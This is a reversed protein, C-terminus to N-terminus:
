QSIANPEALTQAHRSNGPNDHRTIRMVDRLPAHSRRLAGVNGACSFSKRYHARNLRPALGPSANTLSLLKSVPVPLRNPRIRPM